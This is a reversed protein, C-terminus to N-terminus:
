KSLIVQYEIIPYFEFIKRADCLLFFRRQFINTPLFKNFEGQNHRVSIKLPTNMLSLTQHHAGPSFAILIICYKLLSTLEILIALRLRLLSYLYKIFCLFRSIKYTCELTLKNKHSHNNLTEYNM